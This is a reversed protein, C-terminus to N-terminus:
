QRADSRKQKHQKHLAELKVRQDATLVRRIRLLMMTRAKSLAARADEVRGVQQAIVADEAREVARGLEAELSDLQTKARHLEPRAAQFIDEIRRSQDSTLGLHRQAAEDQWWKFAQAELPPRALLFAGVLM